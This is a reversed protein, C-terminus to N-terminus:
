WNWWTRLPPRHWFYPCSFVGDVGARATERAGVSAAALGTFFTRILLALASARALLDVLTDQCDTLWLPSSALLMETVDSTLRAEDASAQGRVRVMDAIRLGASNLRLTLSSNVQGKARDVM